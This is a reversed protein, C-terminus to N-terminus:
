TAHGFYWGSIKTLYDRPSVATNYSPSTPNEDLLAFNSVVGGTPGSEVISSASSCGTLVLGALLGTLAIRRPGLIRM